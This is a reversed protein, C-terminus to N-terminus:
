ALCEDHRSRPLNVWEGWVLYGCLRNNGFFPVDASKIAGAILAEFSKWRDNKGQGKLRGVSRGQWGASFGGLLTKGAKSSCLAFSSVILLISELQPHVVACCCDSASTPLLM